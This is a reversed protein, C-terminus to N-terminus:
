AQVADRQGHRDAVSAPDAPPLRILRKRFPDAHFFDNM